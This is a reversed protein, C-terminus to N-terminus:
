THGRSKGHKRATSIDDFPPSLELRMAEALGVAHLHKVAWTRSRHTLPWHQADAFRVLLRALVAAAEQVDRSDVKDTTDAATHGFGRGEPLKELNGLSVAPVGRLFFTYHDSHANVQDAFPLPYAIQRAVRHLFPAFQPWGCTVIGKARGAPLSDVNFYLRIHKLEDRHKQVYARSGLLGIEEASWFAVRITRRLSPRAAAIARVAELVAAVGSANDDAGEAIDHADFHAGVLICDRRNSGPLSALVNCGTATIFEDMTVLRVRVAAQRASRSLVSAHEKSLGVGPIEARRGFRLAGTPPLLGDYHNAFFFGCAGARVARGYKEVRHVWRGLHLLPKSNVMVIRGPIDRSRAEFDAPTGDGLDLMEAVLGKPDTPPCYPLALCPVSRKVPALTTLKAPRGRRWGQYRFEEIAADQLGASRLQNVLFEAARREESTGAFRGGFRDCLEVVTEYARSTTCISGVIRADLDQYPNELM